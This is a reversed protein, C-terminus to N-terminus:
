NNNISNIYEDAIQQAAQTNNLERRLISEAAKISLTVTEQRLSKIANMREKEISERAAKIMKTGQEEAADRADKVIKEKIEKAERLIADREARAQIMLQENESKLRAMEAKAKKAEDLANQINEERSRLGSVIPGWAFKRLVLLLAAFTVLTWFMLGINPTILVNALITNM